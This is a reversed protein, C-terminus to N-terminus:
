ARNGKKRPLEDEWGELMQGATWELVAQVKEAETNDPANCIAELGALKAKELTFARGYHQMLAATAEALLAPTLTVYVGDAVKWGPYETVGTEFIRYASNLRLEDKQESDWRQGNLMFGSYEFEQRRAKLAAQAQERAVALPVAPVEGAPYLQGDYGRMVEYDVQVSGPFPFDAAAVIRDNEIQVFSM